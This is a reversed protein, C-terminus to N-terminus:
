VPSNNPKSKLITVAEWAKQLATIAKPVDTIRFTKSSKWNGDRDTYSRDVSVNFTFHTVGDKVYEHPFVSSTVNGCQIRHLPKNNNSVPKDSWIRKVAKRFTENEALQKKFEEIEM